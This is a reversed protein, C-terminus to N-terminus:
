PANSGSVIAVVIIAEYTGDVGRKNTFVEKPLEARARGRSRNFQTPIPQFNDLIEQGGEEFVQGFITVSAAPSVNSLFSKPLMLTVVVDKAPSTAGSNVRLEYPLRKQPAFVATTANFDAQVEPSTTTSLRVRTSKVFAGSPFTVSAIHLLVVTGGTPSVVAKAAGISSGETASSTVSTFVLMFSAVGISITSLCFVHPIRDRLADSRNSTSMAAERQVVRGIDRCKPQRIGQMVRSFNLM